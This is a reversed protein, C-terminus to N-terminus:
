VSFARVASSPSLVLFRVVFVRLVCLYVFFFLVVKKKQEHVKTDEHHAKPNERKMAM